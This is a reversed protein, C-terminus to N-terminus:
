RRPPVELYQVSFLQGPDTWVRRVALGARRALGAFGPLPLFADFHQGREIEYYRIGAEPDGAASVYYYPRSSHNV